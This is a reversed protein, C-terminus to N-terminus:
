LGRIPTRRNFFRCIRPTSLYLLLLLDLGLEFRQFERGYFRDDWYSIPSNFRTTWDLPFLLLPGDDAHTLIDVISHFSCAILFWFWWHSRSGINRRKRWVIVLGTLLVLPAHLFNHAAIWFPNHFYLDDFMWTAAEGASWGLILRAYIMGGLSLLWLAVDPAVSGLLFASKAIPVRPLAKELAATMLFHSPTNMLCRLSSDFRCLNRGFCPKNIQEKLQSKLKTHLSM